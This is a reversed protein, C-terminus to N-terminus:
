QRWYAYFLRYKRHYDRAAPSINISFTRIVMGFYM